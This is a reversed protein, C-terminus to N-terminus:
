NSVAMNHVDIWLAGGNPAYNTSEVAWMVKSVKLGFLSPMPESWKSSIAPCNFLNLLNIQFDVDQRYTGNLTPINMGCNANLDEANVVIFEAGPYLISQKYPWAWRAVQPPVTNGPYRFSPSNPDIETNSPWHYLSILISKPYTGWDSYVYLYAGQGNNAGPSSPHVVDWLKATFKLTVAGLQGLSFDAVPYSSGWGGTGTGFGMFPIWAGSPLPAATNPTANLVLHARQFVDNPGGNQGAPIINFGFVGQGPLSRPLSADPPGSLATNTAPEVNLSLVWFNKCNPNMPSHAPDQTFPCGAPWNQSWFNSQPWVAPPNNCKTGPAGPTGLAPMCSDIQLPSAATGISPNYYDTRVVATNRFGPDFLQANSDLSWASAIVTLACLLVHKM